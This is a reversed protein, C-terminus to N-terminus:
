CVCHHYMVPYQQVGGQPLMVCLQVPHCGALCPIRRFTFPYSCESQILNTGLIIDFPTRKEGGGERKVTSHLTDGAPM